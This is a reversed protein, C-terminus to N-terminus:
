MGWFLADPHGGPAPEEGVWATWHELVEALLRCAALAPRDHRVEEVTRRVAAHDAGGTLRARLLEIRVFAAPAGSPSLRTSALKLWQLAERREGRAAALRARVTWTLEAQEGAIHRESQMEEASDLRGAAEEFRGAARFADALDAEIRARIRPEDVRLSAARELLELAAAAQGRRLRTYGAHDLFSPAEMPLRPQGALQRMGLELWPDIEPPPTLGAFRHICAFDVTQGFTAPANGFSRCLAAAADDNGLRCRVRADWLHFKAPLGHLEVLPLLPRVHALFQAAEEMGGRDYLRIVENLEGDVVQHLDANISPMSEAPKVPPPLNKWRMRTAFPDAMEVRRGRGTDTIRSWNVQLQGRAAPAGLERVLAGRLQARTDAPPEERARALVTEELAAVRHRLVGARDLQGFLGEAGLEGYRTFIEAVEARLRLLPAVQALDLGGTQLTARVASSRLDQVGLIRDGDSEELAWPLRRAVRALQRNLARVTDLSVGRDALLEVFLGYLVAWDLLRNAAAAGGQELLDLVGRWEQVQAPAWEPLVALHREVWQCLLRSIQAATRRMGDWCRMKTRLAPDRAFVRMARLPSILRASAPPKLGQGALLAVLSTTGFRLALSTHSMNRDGCNLHLRLSGGNAHPEDRTHFIPRESTNGGGIAQEVWAVRPSIMFVIGASRADLGGGGCLVVRSVLHPLVAPALELPEM